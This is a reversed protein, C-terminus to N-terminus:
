SSCGDGSELELTNENSWFPLELGNAIVRWKEEGVLGQCGSIQKRDEHNAQEPCKMLFLIICYGNM